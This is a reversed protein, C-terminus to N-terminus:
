SLQPKGAEIVKYFSAKPDNMGSGFLLPAWNARWSIADYLGWFTIGTINAGAEKKEIIKRMLQYM